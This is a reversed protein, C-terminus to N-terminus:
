VTYGREQLYVKLKNRTKYLRVTIANKTTGEEAALAEVSVSFWYRRLFLRREPHDLTRLFGNLLEPLEDARDDSAQVM